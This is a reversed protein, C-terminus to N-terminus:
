GVHLGYKAAIAAILDKHAPPLAVDAAVYTLLRGIATDGPGIEGYENLKVLLSSAVLQASGNLDLNVYPAVGSIALLTSRGDPTQFLPYASLVLLLRQIDTFDLKTM